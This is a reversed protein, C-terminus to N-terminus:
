IGQGQFQEDVLNDIWVSRVDANIANGSAGMRVVVPRFARGTSTLLDERTSMFKQKACARGPSFFFLVHKILRRVIEDVATNSPACVLVRAVGGTQSSLLAGITGMLTSTKGTGPPGQILTFGKRRECCARIAAIQSSNYRANLHEMGGLASRDQLGAVM